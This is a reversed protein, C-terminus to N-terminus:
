SDLESVIAPGSRTYTNGDREDWESANPHDPPRMLVYGAQGCDRCIAPAYIGKKRFKWSQPRRNVAMKIHPCSM